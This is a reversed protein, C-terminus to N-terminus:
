KERRISCSFEGLGGPGCVQLYNYSDTSWGNFLRDLTDFFEFVSSKIFILVFVLGAFGTMNRCCLNKIKRLAM